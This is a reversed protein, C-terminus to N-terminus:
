LKDSVEDWVTLSGEVFGRLFDADMLNHENEEGTAMEWFEKALTRDGDDDPELYFYVREYAAWACTGDTEFNGCDWCEAWDDRMRAFRKLERVRATNTAWATGLKAGDRYSEAEAEAKSARLRNIVDSMNKKEKNSAIEALKEEFARCAIASWNVEDKVKDMRKKLSAPVSVSTRSIGM